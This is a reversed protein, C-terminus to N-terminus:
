YDHLKPPTNICPHTSVLLLSLNLAAGYKFGSFIFLMIHLHDHQCAPPHMFPFVVSVLLASPLACVEAVYHRIWSFM